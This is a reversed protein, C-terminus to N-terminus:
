QKEAWMRDIEEFRRKISTELTKQGGADSSFEAYTGRVHGKLEDLSKDLHEVGLHTNLSRNGQKSDKYEKKCSDPPNHYPCPIQGKADRSLRHYSTTHNLTFDNFNTIM